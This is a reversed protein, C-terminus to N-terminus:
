NLHPNRRIKQNTLCTSCFAKELTDSELRQAFNFEGEPNTKRFRTATQQRQQSM